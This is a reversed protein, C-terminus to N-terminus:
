GEQLSRSFEVYAAPNDYIEIPVINELDALSNHIKELHGQLSDIAAILTYTDLEENYHHWLSIKTLKTIALAQRNSCLADSLFNASM